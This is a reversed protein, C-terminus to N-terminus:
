KGQSFLIKSYIVFASQNLRDVIQLTFDSRTFLNLHLDIMFCISIRLTRAM